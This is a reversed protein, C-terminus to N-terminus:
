YYIYDNSEAAREEDQLHKRLAAKFLHKSEIGQLSKPLSNWDKIATHYFTHASPGQAISICFNLDNNRTRITQSDTKRHFHEALYTPGRKNHINHAHSLKLEKVRNKVSLMNVKEREAQGIHSRSGLGLIFRIIKNQCIQLQKKSRSKLGSYWSSCAYDFHPQILASCLTKKIAKDLDKAQRYM